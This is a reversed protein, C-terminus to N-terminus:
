KPQKKSTPSSVGTKSWTRSLGSKKPKKTLSFDGIQIGDKGNARVPAEFRGKRTRIQSLPRWITSGWKFNKM